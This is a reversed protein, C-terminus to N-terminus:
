TSPTGAPKAPEVPEVPSSPPSVLGLKVAEERNRSDALFSLLESPSNRFRERVASPLTEFAESADALMQHAEMLSSPMKSFDGFMPPTSCPPVGGHAALINPILTSPYDAEEVMSPKTSSFQVRRRTYRTLFAM